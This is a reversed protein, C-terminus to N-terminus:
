DFRRHSSVIVSIIDVGESDLHLAPRTERASNTILMRPPVFQRLLLLSREPDDPAAYSVLVSQLPRVDRVAAASDDVVVIDGERLGADELVNTEIRYLYRNPGKLAALPDSDGAEYHTADEHLGQTARPGATIGVVDALSVDLAEAIRQAIDLDLKTTGDELRSIVSKSRGILLGLREQSLGSRERLHKIRHTVM